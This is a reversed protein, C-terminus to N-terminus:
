ARLALLPALVELRLDALPLHHPSVLSSVAAHSAGNEVEGQLGRDELRVPRTPDEVQARLVRDLELHPDNREEVLAPNADWREREALAEPLHPRGVIVPVAGRGHDPRVVLEEVGRETLRDRIESGEGDVPLSPRRATRPDPPEGGREPPVRDDGAELGEHYPRTERAVGEAEEGLELPLGLVVPGLLFGAPDEVLQAPSFHGRAH